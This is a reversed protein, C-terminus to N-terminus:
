ADSEMGNMNSILYDIVEDLDISTKDDSLNFVSMATYLEQENYRILDSSLSSKNDKDKNNNLRDVRNKDFAMIHSFIECFTLYGSCEIEEHMAKRINISLYEKFENRNNLDIKFERNCKNFGSWARMWCKIYTWIMTFEQMDIENSGDADFVKFVEQIM